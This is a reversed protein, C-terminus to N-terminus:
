NASLSKNESLSVVLRYREAFTLIVCHTSGTLPLIKWISVIDADSLQDINQAGDSINWGRTQMKHEYRQFIAPRLQRSSQTDM